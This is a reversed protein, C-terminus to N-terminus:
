KVLNPNMDAPLIFSPPYKKSKSRKSQKSKHSKSSPDFAKLIGCLIQTGDQDHIVVDRGVNDAFTDDGSTFTFSGKAFGRKNVDYISEGAPTWQDVPSGCTLKVSHDSGERMNQSM